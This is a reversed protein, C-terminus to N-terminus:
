TITITGDPVWLGDKIYERQSDISFIMSDLVMREISNTKYHNKTALIAFLYHDVSGLYDGEVPEFRKKIQQAMLYNPVAVMGIHRHLADHPDMHIPPKLWTNHRLQRMPEQARHLLRPFNLHHEEINRPYKNAM